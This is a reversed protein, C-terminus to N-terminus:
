WKKVRYEWPAIVGDDAANDSYVEVRLPGRIEAMLWFWYIFAVNGDTGDADWDEDGIMEEGGMIYLFSRITIISAV